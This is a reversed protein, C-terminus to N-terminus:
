TLLQFFVSTNHQSGQSMYFFGTIWTIGLIFFLAISGYIKKKMKKHGLDKAKEAKRSDKQYSINKRGKDFNTGSRGEVRLVNITM